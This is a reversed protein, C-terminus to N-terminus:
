ENLLHESTNHAHKSLYPMFDTGGTGKEDQKLSHKRIYSFAFSKHLSRFKFLEELCHNYDTTLNTTHAVVFDRISPGGEVTQLFYRHYQPMHERMVQLYDSLWGSPHSVGLAADLTAIITSQAGTEGYYKLPETSVGEYILGSPLSPNDRWGSMFSRIRHYYIYPDCKEGMRNLTQQMNQLVQAISKLNDSVQKINGNLVAEQALLVAEMAIAAKAEIDVHVLRFWEEDVGGFFNHLCVINGLEVPGDPDLRRWNNLNYTAYVLVPPMHLTEAIKTLPVAIHRPLKAPPPEEGWVYAHAIFSLVFYARWLERENNEVLLSETDFEPLNELRRRLTGNGSAVLLQPLETLTEEWVTYKISTLCRLPDNVPLFGRNTTVSFVPSSSDSEQAMISHDPGVASFRSCFSHRSQNPLNSLNFNERSVWACPSQCFLVVTKLSFSGGIPLNQPISLLPTGFVSSYSTGQQFSIHLGNQVTGM